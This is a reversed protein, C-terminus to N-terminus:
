AARRPGDNTGNPNGANFQFPEDLLDGLKDLDARINNFLADLNQADNDASRARRPLKMNGTPAPKASFVGGEPFPLTERDSTLAKAASSGQDRNRRPKFRM